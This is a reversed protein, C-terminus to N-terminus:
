DQRSSLALNRTSSIEAFKGALHPLVQISAFFMRSDGYSLTLSTYIYRVTIM